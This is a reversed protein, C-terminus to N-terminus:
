IGMNIRIRIEIESKTYNNIIRELTFLKGFRNITDGLDLNFENFYVGWGENAAVEALKMGTRNLDPHVIITGKFNRLISIQEDSLNFRMTGIGNYHISDLPSECLILYKNKNFVQEVNFMYTPDPRFDIYRDSKEVDPKFSRAVYGVINDKFVFPITLRENLNKYKNDVWMLYPYRELGRQKAYVYAKFANSNEDIDDLINHIFHSGKPMDFKKYNINTIVEKTPPVYITQLPENKLELFHLKNVESDPVYLLELLKFARYPVKDTDSFRFKFNCNFCNYGIETGTMFLGARQRTDNTPEGMYVCCPCNFVYKGRQLKHPPLFPTIIDLYQDIM